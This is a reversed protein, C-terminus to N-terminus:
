SGPSRCGTADEARTEIGSIDFQPDAAIVNQAGTEIDVELLRAANANSAPAVWLRRITRRLASSAASPRTRAGHILERWPAKADDRVRIITSGDATM